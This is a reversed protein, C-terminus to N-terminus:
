YCTEPQTPPPELFLTESPVLLGLVVVSNSAKNHCAPSQTNLQTHLHTYNDTRKHSCWSAYSWNFLHMKEVQHSSQCIFIHLIMPSSCTLRTFEFLIFNFVSMCVCVFVSYSSFLSTQHHYWYSTFMVGYSTITPSSPFLCIHYLIASHTSSSSCSFHPPLPLSQSCCTSLSSCDVTLHVPHLFENCICRHTNHVSSNWEFQFKFASVHALKVSDTISLM